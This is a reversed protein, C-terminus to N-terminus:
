RYIHDMDPRVTGFYHVWIYISQFCAAVMALKSAALIGFLWFGQVAFVYMANNTWRFLGQTVRPEDRYSPDFHDIGAARQFGFYRAVSYMAYGTLLILPTAVAWRLPVSMALSDHDALALLLLTAPRSGLLLFFGVAYVRFGWRESIFRSRLELRWCLWVYVQHAIPVALALAFWTSVELGLWMTSPPDTLLNLAPLAVILFALHLLQGKFLPPPSSPMLPMYGPSRQPPRAM